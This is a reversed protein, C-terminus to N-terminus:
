EKNRKGRKKELVDKKDPGTLNELIMMKEKM